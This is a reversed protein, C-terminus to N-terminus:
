YRSNLLDPCIGGRTYTSNGETGSLLARVPDDADWLWERDPEVFRPLFSPLRDDLPDPVPPRRVTECRPELPEPFGVDALRLFDDRSTDRELRSWGIDALDTPDLSAEGDGIYGIGFPDDRAGDIFTLTEDLPSLSRVVASLVLGDDADLEALSSETALFSSYLLSSLAVGGVALIRLGLVKSDSSKLIRM